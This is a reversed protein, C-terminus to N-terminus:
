GFNLRLTTAKGGLNAVRLNGTYEDTKRVIKLSVDPFRPM